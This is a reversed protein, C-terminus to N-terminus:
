RSSQKILYAQLTKTKSGISQIMAINETVQELTTEKLVISPRTLGISAVVATVLVESNIQWYQDELEGASTLMDKTKLDVVVTMKKTYVATSILHTIQVGITLLAM